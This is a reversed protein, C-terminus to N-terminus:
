LRNWVQMDCHFLQFIALLIKASQFCFYTGLNKNCHLDCFLLFFNRLKVVTQLNKKDTNMCVSDSRSNIVTNWLMAMLSHLHRHKGGGFVKVGDKQRSGDYVQTKLRCQKEFM